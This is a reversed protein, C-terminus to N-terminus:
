WSIRKNDVVLEHLFGTTPMRMLHHTNDFGDGDSGEDDPYCIERMLMNSLRDNSTFGM